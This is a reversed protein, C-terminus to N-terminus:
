SWFPSEQKTSLNKKKQSTIMNIPPTIKFLTGFVFQPEVFYKLLQSSLISYKEPITEFLAEAAATPPTATTPMAM